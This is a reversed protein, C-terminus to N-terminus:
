IDFATSQSILNNGPRDGGLNLKLGPGSWTLNTTPFTANQEGGTLMMGGVNRVRRRLLRVLLALSSFRPFECVCVCVCVYVCLLARLNLIETVHRRTDPSTDGQSEFVSGGYEFVSGGYEM